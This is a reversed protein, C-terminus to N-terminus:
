AIGYIIMFVSVGRASRALLAQESPRPRSGTGMEVRMFGQWLGVLDEAAQRADDPRLDGDRMGRAIREVLTRFAQGPGAEFFRDALDPHQHGATAILREFGILEPDTLLRLLRFGFAALDAQLTDAAQDAEGGARIVRDAERRIVAELLASRDAFNSYFNAKSVGARAIVADLSVGDAGHQLFLARAADLVADKKAENKPRGRPRPMDNM